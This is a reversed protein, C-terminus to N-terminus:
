PRDRTLSQIAKEAAARMDPDRSERQSKLAPILNADDGGIQGLAKVIAVRLNWETDNMLNTPLPTNPEPRTVVKLLVPVSSRAAAGIQALANACKLRVAISLSENAAGTGLDPVSKVFILGNVNLTHFACGSVVNDSSKLLPIMAPIAEQAQAALSHIAYVAMADPGSENSGLKPILLGVQRRAEEPSIEVLMQGADWILPKKPQALLPTLVSAIEHENAGIAQLTQAITLSAEDRRKLGIEVLRKTAPRAETKMSKLAGLLLKLRGPVIEFATQDDLLTLVDPLLPAASEQLTRFATLAIIVRNIDEGRLLEGVEDVTAQDWEAAATLAELRIAPDADPIASRIAVVIEDGASAWKLNRTNRLTRVVQLRMAVQDSRLAQLLPKFAQPGIELLAKSAAERVVHDSDGLLPAILDAAKSKDAAIRAMAFVAQERVKGDEDSLREQIKTLADIAAAGIRGLGMTGRRREAPNTSNLMALLEPVASSGRKVYEEIPTPLKATTEEAKPDSDGDVRNREQVYLGAGVLAAVGLLALWLLSSSPERLKRAEAM